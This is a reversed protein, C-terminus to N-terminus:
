STVTVCHGSVGDSFHAHKYSYNGIGINQNCGCLSITCIAILLIGIIKNKM